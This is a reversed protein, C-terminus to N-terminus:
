DTTFYVKVSHKVPDALDRGYERVADQGFYLRIEDAVRPTLDDMAGSSM